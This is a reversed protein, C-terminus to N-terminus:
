NRPKYNAVFTDMDSGRFVHMGDPNESKMLEQNKALCHMCLDRHVEPKLVKEWHGLQERQIEFAREVTLKPHTTNM